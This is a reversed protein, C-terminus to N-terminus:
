AALDPLSDVAVRGRESHWAAYIATTAFSEHGLLERAARFDRRAVETAFWHRLRHTTADSGVREFASHVRYCVAQRTLRAGAASSVVWGKRPGDSLAAAVSPHLPVTRTKGNKGDVVTLWGGELDVDAFRLAAIESARLGAFAGLVLIPRELATSAALAAQLDATRVPRPGRKPLRPRSVLEAVNRAVVDTEVMWRWWAVLTARYSARTQAAWRDLWLELDARTLEPASRGAHDITFRALRRQYEVLTRPRLNRRRCDILFESALGALTNV